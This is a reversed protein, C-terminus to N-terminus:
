NFAAKMAHEVVADTNLYEFEAFRGVCEVGVSKLYKLVTDVNKRHDLDYIVYAYKETVTKISVVDSAEIIGQEALNDVVKKEIEHVSLSELYSNPRFTVEALLTSSGDKHCYHSGLFNLKSLRHFLVSSDPYYVAFNDGLTDKKVHLAVIHISNYKLASLARAPEEPFPIYAALEQLPMCSFLREGLFEGKDTQVHWAGNSSTIKTIDVGVHIDANGKAKQAYADVLAQFGNEEPYHFYLQHKYGETEVGNASAIVDEKPPKPIREVMQTDMCSADYKWIKNNYPQLYCHTIGEGFTALFFQLMNQPSYDEYPNSVFERLCYDRDEVPLKSLDNEFPYKVYRRKYFIKNSRRLRNTNVITTHLDLIKQNKSFIIHPGIDCVIGDLVFSRSLGGIKEEKELVISEGDLFSALSLGALGGGLIISKGM